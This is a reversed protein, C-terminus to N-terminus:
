WNDDSTYDVKEKEEKTLQDYTFQPDTFGLVDITRVTLNEAVLKHFINQPERAYLDTTFQKPKSYMEATLNNMRQQDDPNDLDVEICHVIYRLYYPGNTSVCSVVFYAPEM